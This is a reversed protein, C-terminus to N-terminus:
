ALLDSLSKSGPKISMYLQTDDAYIHYPVKHFEFIYSLPLMYLAFLIPGLISGQPVGGTVSAPLSHSQGLEVSFSRATFYFVYSIDSDNRVTVSRGLTIVSSIVAM